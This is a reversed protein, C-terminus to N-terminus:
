VKGDIRLFTTIGIRSNGAPQVKMRCRDQRRLMSDLTKTDLNWTKNDNNSTLLCKDLSTNPVGILVYSEM